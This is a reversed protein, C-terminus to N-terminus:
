GVFYLDGAIHHPDARADRNTDVAQRWMPYLVGGVFVGAAIMVVLALHKLPLHM